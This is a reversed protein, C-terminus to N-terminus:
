VFHIYDFSHPIFCIWLLISSTQTLDSFIWVQWFNNVCVGDTVATVFILYSIELSISIWIWLHTLSHSFLSHCTNPAISIMGIAIIHDGCTNLVCGPWGPDDHVVFFQRHAGLPSSSCLLSSHRCFTIFRLLSIIFPLLMHSTCLIWVYLCCLFNNGAYNSRKRMFFLSLFTPHCDRGKLHKRLCEVLSGCPSWVELLKRM